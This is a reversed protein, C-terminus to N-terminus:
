IGEQGERALCELHLMIGVEINVSGTVGPFRPILCVVLGSEVAGGEGKEGDSAILDICRFGPDALRVMGGGGLRKFPLSRLATCRSGDLDPDRAEALKKVARSEGRSGASVVPVAM